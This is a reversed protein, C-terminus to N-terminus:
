QYRRRFYAVSINDSGDNKNALDVLANVIENANKDKITEIILNDKISNYLGDSCLVVQADDYKYTKLAFSITAYIGLANMLANKDYRKRAEDKNIEGERELLGVYSEDISLQKLGNKYQYARSDGVSIIIMKNKRILALVLTTGMGRYIDSTLSADYVIKNTKNITRRLWLKMTIENLFRDKKKFEDVIYDVTLKSAYDGKNHGGMGDAVIMLIDKDANELVITKDQNNLRLKGIDSRYAFENVFVRKKM